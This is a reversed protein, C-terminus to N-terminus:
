TPVDSDAPQAGQAVEAAPPGVEPRGVAPPAVPAGLRGAALFVGVTTEYAAKMRAYLVGGRGDFIARKVLLLHMMRLWGRAPMRYSLRKIARRREIGSGLAIARLDGGTSGDGALFEEAEQRAYRAHKVFWDELGKSFPDHLYPSRLRGLEGATSERQGHGSDCFRLRRKHFLRVQYAPYEGSYRLWRNGWMLKSPVYYGAKENQPTALSRIEEVLEPTFREDADLHFVWDHRLDLSDITWNRQQGFSRFENHSVIAGCSRAIAVTDDTSGSDVVHVDEVVGALSDLCGPLNGAENKCLIVVSLPLPECSAPKASHENM